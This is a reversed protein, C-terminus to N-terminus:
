ANKIQLQAGLVNSELDKQIADFMQLLPQELRKSIQLNQKFCPISEDLHVLDLPKRDWVGFEHNVYVDDKMADQILIGKEGYPDSSTLFNHITEYEYNGNVLMLSLQDVNYIDYTEEVMQVIQSPSKEWQSESLKKYESAHYINFGDEAIYSVFMNPAISYEIIYEIEDRNLYEKILERSKADSYPYRALSDYKSYLITVCILTFAVISSVFIATWKKRRKIEKQSIENTSM